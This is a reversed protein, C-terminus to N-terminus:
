SIKYIQLGDFWISVADGTQPGDLRIQIAQVGANAFTYNFSYEQWSTTINKNSLGINGSQGSVWVGSSDAGFIFLQITTNVSGKALVRVQWTEGNAATSINWPGGTATGYTLIQPDTSTVDMRIPVGGYPSDTVNTDRAISCNYATATGCWAFIDLPNRTSTKFKNVEDSWLRPWSERTRANNNEKLSWIGKASSVTPTSIIGIVRGNSM